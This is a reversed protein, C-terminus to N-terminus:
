SGVRGPVNSRPGERSMEMYFACFRCRVRCFPVHVYIGLNEVHIRGLTNKFDAVATM